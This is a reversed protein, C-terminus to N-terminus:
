GQGGEARPPQSPAPTFTRVVEGTRQRTDVYQLRRIYWGCQCLDLGSAEVRQEWGDQWAHVDPSCKRM